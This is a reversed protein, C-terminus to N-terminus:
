LLTEKDGAIEIGLIEAGNRAWIIDWAPCGIDALSRPLLDSGAGIRHLLDPVREVECKSCWAAEDTVKEASMFTDHRDNCRPCALSRILERSLLLETLGGIENEGWQWIEALTTDSRFATVAQIPTPDEHWECDPNIKYSSPLANRSMGDFFLGCGLGDDMNHLLKLAEQVQMAGIISASIPTTPTGREALARRALLSCSRRKNLLEWDVKGMTCEYCAHHPPAFTRVIGQLVEIGGEIWPRQV